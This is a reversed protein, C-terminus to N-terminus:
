IKRWKYNLFSIRETQGMSIQRKLPLSLLTKRLRYWAKIYNEKYLNHFVSNKKLLFVVLDHTTTEGGSKDLFDSVQRKLEIEFIKLKREYRTIFNSGSVKKKM